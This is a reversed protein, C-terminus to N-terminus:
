GIEKRLIKELPRGKALEDVLKDLYRVLQVTPDTIKEVDIGCIKGHILTRNPNLEPAQDFFDHFITEQKQHMAIDKESYGTLWSIISLVEKETRGKREAKTVYLPYVRAFSMAHIRANTKADNTKM